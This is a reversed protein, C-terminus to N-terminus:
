ELVYLESHIVAWISCTYIANEIVNKWLLICLMYVQICSSTGEPGSKILSLMPYIEVCSFYLLILWSNCINLNSCKSKGICTMFTCACQL